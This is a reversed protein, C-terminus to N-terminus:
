RRVTGRVCRDRRPVEDHALQWPADIRLHEARDEGLESLEDGREHHHIHLGPLAAAEAEDPELFAVVRLAGHLGHVPAFEFFPALELHERGLVGVPEGLGGRDVHEVERRGNRVRLPAADEGLVAGNNPVLDGREVAARGAGAAPERVGVGGDGDLEGAHELGPGGDVRQVAHALDGELREVDVQVEWQDRLVQYAAGVARRAAGAARARTHARVDRSGAVRLRLHTAAVGSVRHSPRAAARVEPHPHATRRVVVRHRRRGRVMGGGRRAGVVRHRHVVVGHLGLWHVHEGRRRILLATSRGSTYELQRRHRVSRREHRLRLRLRLLM